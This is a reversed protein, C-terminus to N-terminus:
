IRMSCIFERGGGNNFGGIFCKCSTFQYEREAFLFQSSRNSGADHEYVQTQMENRYIQFAGRVCDRTAVLVNGCDRKSMRPPPPFITLFVSCCMAGFWGRIFVASVLVCMLPSHLFHGRIFSQASIYSIINGVIIRADNASFPFIVGGVYCM